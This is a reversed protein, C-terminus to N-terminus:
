AAPRFNDLVDSARLRLLPLALANTREADGLATHGGGDLEIATWGHSWRLCDVRYLRPTAFSVQFFYVTGDLVLCPFRMTSVVARSSPDVIQCPTEGFWGPAVLAPLAGSALLQLVYVAELSSDLALMHCLLECDQFDPRREVERTLDSVLSRHARSAAFYRVHAPRDPKPRFIETTVMVQRGADGLRRLGLRPPVFGHQIGLLLRLKNREDKTPPRRGHELHNWRQPSVGIKEAAQKQTLRAERRRTAIIQSYPKSFM